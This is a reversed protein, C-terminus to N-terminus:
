RASYFQTNSFHAALTTGIVKAKLLPREAVAYRLKALRKPPFRAPFDCTNESNSFHRAQSLLNAEM